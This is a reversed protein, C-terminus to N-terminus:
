WHIRWIPDFHEVVNVIEQLELSAGLNIRKPLTRDLAPGAALTHGNM